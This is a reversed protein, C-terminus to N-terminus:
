RRNGAGPRMPRADGFRSQAPVARPAALFPAAILSRRM